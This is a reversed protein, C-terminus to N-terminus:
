IQINLCLAVYSLKFLFKGTKVYKFETFNM